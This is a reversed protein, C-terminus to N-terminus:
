KGSYHKTLKGRATVIGERKLVKMAAKKSATAKKTFASALERFREVSAPSGLEQRVLPTKKM